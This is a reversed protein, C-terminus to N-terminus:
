DPRSKSWAVAAIAIDVLSDDLGFARANRLILDM